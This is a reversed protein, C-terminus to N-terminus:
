SLSFILIGNTIYTSAERMWIFPKNYQLTVCRQRCRVLRLVDPFNSVPKKLAFLPSIRGTQFVVEMKM